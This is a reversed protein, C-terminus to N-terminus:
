HHYPINQHITVARYLQEVLVIRAVEHNLVLNSLRVTAHARKRVSADLGYAGGVVFAVTGELAWDVLKASLGHSDPAEGREDVAILVDNGVLKLLREAEAQRVAHVDGKFAIPKVLKEEFSGYRALRKSYQEVAPDAWRARGKSVRILRLRFQVPDSSSPSAPRTPRPARSVLLM